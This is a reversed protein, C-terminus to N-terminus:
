AVAPGVHPHDLELGIPDIDGRHLAYHGRAGAGLKSVDDRVELVRGPVCQRGDLALAQQLDRARV